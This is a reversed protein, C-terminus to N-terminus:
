HRMVLSYLFGNKFATRTTAARDSIAHHRGRDPVQDSCLRIAGREGAKNQLPSRSRGTQLAGRREEGDLDIKCLLARVFFVVVRWSGKQVAEVGSGLPGILRSAISRDAQTFLEARDCCGRVSRSPSTQFACVECKTNHFGTVLCESMLPGIQKGPFNVVAVVLRGVLEEPKYLATIQASSKKVGLEDGFDVHLV